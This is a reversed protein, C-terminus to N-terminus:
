SLLAFMSVLKLVFSCKSDLSSLAKNCFAQIASTNCLSSWAGLRAPSGWRALLPSWAGWPCLDWCLGVGLIFHGSSGDGVAGPLDGLM